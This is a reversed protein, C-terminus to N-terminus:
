GEVLQPDHQYYYAGYRAAYSSQSIGVLAAGLLNAGAAALRETALRVQRSRSVDRLACVITGDAAQSIYLSESACLVPPTDVVVYDYRAHADALLRQFAGEAFLKHPSCALQGAPLVDLRPITSPVIADDLATQNSLAEALGPELRVQLISHIDPSRLDGDVLLVRAGTSRVLSIALQSALTSKGEGSAASAVAFSRMTQTKENLLLRTLLSDVSEQFLSLDRLTRRRSGANDVAIQRSPLRAVEGFIPLAAEHALQTTNSIRRALVEGGVAMAFPVILGGLGFLLLHKWPWREVPQQPAIAKQELTVRPPARLETELLLKRSGILDVVKEERALETRLFELEVSTGGKDRADRLEDEVRKALSAREAELGALKKALEHVEATRKGTDAQAREQLWKERLKERLENVQAQSDDLQRQTRTYLPNQEPRLFDARIQGLREKLLTLKRLPEKMEPRLDIELNQVEIPLSAASTASEASKLQAKLVETEVEVSTLRQRLAVLPSVRDVPTPAQPSTNLPDPVGLEKAKAVMQSRLRQVEQLRVEKAEGLLEIVRRKHSDDRSTQHDVYTFVVANVLAAADSASRSLFEVKHLESKGVASIKINRELWEMLDDHETLEKIQSIEPKALVPALIVPSKMLQIQTEVYADARDERTEAVIARERSGFILWATARYQPQFTWMVVGVAILALALGAPLAYYWWRQFATWALAPTIAAEAGASVATAKAAVRPM